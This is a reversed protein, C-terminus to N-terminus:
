TPTSRASSRPLAASLASRAPRSASSSRSRARRTRRFRRDMSLDRRRAARRLPHRDARRVRSRGPRLRFRRPRRLGRALAGFKTTAFSPRGFARALLEPHERAATALDCAVVRPRRKRHTVSAAVAEIAAPDASAIANSTSEGFGARSKAVARQHLLFPRASRIRARRALVARRRVRRAADYLAHGAASAVAVTSSLRLPRKASRTTAKASSATPSTMVAPRSSEDM